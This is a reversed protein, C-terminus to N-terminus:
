YVDGRIWGVGPKREIERNLSAFVNYALEDSNKWTGVQRGDRVINKFKELKDKKEDSELFQKEIPVSEDIIFALIPKKLEKAYLFEKQTYSIGSDIGNEIETGYRNGIILVYYDSCEITEKIINWQNEDSANFMEMGVPFHQLRLIADRVKQRQEILDIYTSSLFIQYKKKVNKNVVTSSDSVILETQKDKCSINSMKLALSIKDDELLETAKIRGQKAEENRLLSKHVGEYSEFKNWINTNFSVDNLKKLVVFYENPLCEKLKFYYKLDCGLSCFNDDLQEIETPLYSDVEKADAMNDLQKCYIKVFSNWICNGSNDFYRIMYETKYGFDNWSDNYSLVIVNKYNCKENDGKIIRMKFYVGKNNKYKHNETTTQSCLNTEKFM